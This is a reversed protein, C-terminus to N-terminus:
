NKKSKIGCYDLYNIENINIERFEKHAVLFVILECSEIVEDISYLKFKYNKINPECVFVEFESDILNEIIEKAPSQRIDDVDPKFTLGLCGIKPNYEIEKKIEKAKKIIQKFVWKPKHNNVKRATQILDSIDPSKSAIFWPDVAICHGGVGCGPNLINVRPHHNALKILNNININLQDCIISMENAFALNVDRYSNETLKVLEATNATTSLLEGQCFNRYFDIAEKTGEPSLGGIVRDNHILESMVAGPIVREPCYAVNFQGKSLGSLEEIKNAVKESTGVPSTSEIIVLAGPEIEHAISSAADLVFKINPQPINSLDDVFPTPVAIVYYDAPVPHSKFTILKKNVVKQLLDDLGPESFHAEGIKLSKLIESKVDVGIVHIGSNAIVVANPLGIYGLGLVCCSKKKMM